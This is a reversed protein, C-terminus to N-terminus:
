LKICIFILALVYAFVYILNFFAKYNGKSIRTTMKVIHHFIALSIMVIIYAKM